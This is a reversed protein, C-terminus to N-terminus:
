YVHMSGICEFLSTISMAPYRIDPRILGVSGSIRGLGLRLEQPSKLLSGVDVVQFLQTAPSAPQLVPPVLEQDLNYVMRTRVAAEEDSRSTLAQWHSLGDLGDRSQDICSIIYSTFNHSLYM